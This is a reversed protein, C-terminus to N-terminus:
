EHAVSSDLADCLLCVYQCKLSGYSGRVLIETKERCVWCIGEPTAGGPQSGRSKSRSPSAALARALALDQAAVEARRPLPQGTLCKSACAKHDSPTLESGLFHSEEKFGTQENVAVTLYVVTEHLHWLTVGM